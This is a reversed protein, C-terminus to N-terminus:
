LTIRLEDLKNRQGHARIQIRKLRCGFFLGALRSRDSPLKTPRGFMGRGRAPRLFHLSLM